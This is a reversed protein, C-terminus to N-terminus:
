PEVKLELDRFEQYLKPSNKKLTELIAQTLGVDKLIWWKESEWFYFKKLFEKQSMKLNLKDFNRKVAPSFDQTVKHWGLSDYIFFCPHEILQKQLSPPLKKVSEGYGDTLGQLTQNVMRNEVFWDIRDGFGQAIDSGDTFIDPSHNLSAFGGKLISSNMREVDVIKLGKLFPWEEGWWWNFVGYSM